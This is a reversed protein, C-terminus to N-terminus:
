LCSARSGRRFLLGREPDPADRPVITPGCPIAERRGAGGRYGLDRRLWEWAWGTRDLRELWRYAEGDAGDPVGVQRGEAM